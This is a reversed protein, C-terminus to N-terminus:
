ENSNKASSAFSLNLYQDTFLRSSFNPSTIWGLVLRATGSLAVNNQEFLVNSPNGIDQPRQWIGVRGTLIVPASVRVRKSWVRPIRSNQQSSYFLTGEFYLQPYFVGNIYGSANAIERTNFGSAGGFRITDNQVCPFCIYPAYARSYSGSIDINNGRLFVTSNYGNSRDFTITFETLSNTQAQTSFTLYVVLCLTILTLKLVGM